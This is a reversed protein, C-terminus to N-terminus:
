NTREIYKDIKNKADDFGVAFDAKYGLERLRKMYSEQEELHENKRMSGDKKYIVVGDRKLELFLGHYGNNPYAIFLDPYGRGEQLRKHMVAQAMTLKLGASHDTRFVVGPYQLKLYETVMRHVSEEKKTHTRKRTALTRRPYM